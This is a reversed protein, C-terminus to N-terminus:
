CLNNPRILRKLIKQWIKDMATPLFIASVFPNLFHVIGRKRTTTSINKEFFHWHLCNDWNDILELLSFLYQNTWSSNLHYVISFFDVNTIKDLSQHM